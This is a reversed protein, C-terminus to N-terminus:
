CVNSKTLPFRFHKENYAGVTQPECVHCFVKKNQLCRGFLASSLKSFYCLLFAVEPLLQTVGAKLSMMKVKKKRYPSHPVSVSFM